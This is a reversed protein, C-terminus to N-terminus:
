LYVKKIIKNVKNSFAHLAAHLRTSIEWDVLRSLEIKCKHKNKVEKNIPKSRM